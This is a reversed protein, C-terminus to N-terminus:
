LGLRAKGPLILVFLFNKVKFLSVRFSLLWVSFAWDNKGVLSMLFQLFPTNDFIVVLFSSQSSNLCIDILFMFNSLRRIKISLILHISEKSIIM